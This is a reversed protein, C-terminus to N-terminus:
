APAEASASASETAEPAAAGAAVERVAEVLRRADDADNYHVFGARVAGHPDLGLFRELEWAYYNGDWVAIEREALAVAVESARLGAVNFMLTPVRDPPDGYLTVGDIGALGEAAIGLLEDEHARIQGARARRAAGARRLPHRHATRVV